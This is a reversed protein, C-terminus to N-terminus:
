VLPLAHRLGVSMFFTPIPTPHTSRLKTCCKMAEMPFNVCVSSHFSIRISLGAPELSNNRSFTICVAKTSSLPYCSLFDLIHFPTHLSCLSDCFHPHASSPLHSADSHMVYMYPITLSPIENIFICIM